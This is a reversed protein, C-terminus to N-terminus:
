ERSGQSPSARRDSAATEIMLLELSRALDARNFRQKVVARGAAGMRHGLDPDQALREAAAAIAKPDGPAVFIGAGADEVLQRIVGDVALIVPRSSALYDFVKNPYTTKYVELPKLIALCADAAALALPMEAKPIAPLFRVNPLGLEHARAILGPKEKGDGLLVFVINPQRRLHDAAELVVGLDNSMGHAGAYLVVYKGELGHARRFTAGDGLLTFMDVDVGNPVLHVSRAGRARVHEVFGPSNVVVRDAHRYLFHELGESLRILLPQRLVGVAVAFAPWLDRVEFLFAARKLRAVAWATLGQFLPPSTGWILDVKRVGLGVLFSSLTFSLFSLTRHIFSRHWAPYTYCRIITVGADDVERTAWGRSGRRGTMYSVQGALVTVQHGQAALYRAMEHHRTGGPEGLTAFAQHILLLHM